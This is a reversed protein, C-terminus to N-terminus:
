CLVQIKVCPSLAMHGGGPRKLVQPCFKVVRDAVSQMEGSEFLEGRFLPPTSVHVDIEPDHVAIIGAVNKPRVMRVAESLGSTVLSCDIPNISRRLTLRRGWMVSLIIAMAAVAVFILKKMVPQGNKGGKEKLDLM